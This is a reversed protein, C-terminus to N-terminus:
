RIEVIILYLTKSDKFKSCGTGMFFIQLKKLNANRLFFGNWIPYQFIRNEKELTSTYLAWDAIVERWFSNSIKKSYARLSIHDLEWIQACDSEKLITKVM